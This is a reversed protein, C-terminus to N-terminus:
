DSVSDSFSPRRRLRMKKWRELEARIIEEDAVASECDAELAQNTGLGNAKCAQVMSRIDELTYWIEDWGGEQDKLHNKLEAWIKKLSMGKGQLQMIFQCISGKVLETRRGHGGHAIGAVQLYPPYRLLGARPQLPSHPTSTSASPAITTTATTGIQKSCDVNERASDGRGRPRHEFLRTRHFLSM